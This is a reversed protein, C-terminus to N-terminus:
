AKIWRPKRLEIWLQCRKRSKHNIARFVSIFFPCAVRLTKVKKHQKPKPPFSIKIEDLGITLILM